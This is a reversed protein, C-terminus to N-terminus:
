DFLDRIQNRGLGDLEDATKGASLAYAEWDDRSANAGPKEASPPTSGRDVDPDPLPGPDDIFAEDAEDAPAIIGDVLNSRLWAESQGPPVPAGRYLHVHQGLENQAVALPGTVVYSTGDSM